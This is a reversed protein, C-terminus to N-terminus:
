MYVINVSRVAIRLVDCDIMFLELVSGSVLLLELVSLLCDWLCKLVSGGGVGLVSV